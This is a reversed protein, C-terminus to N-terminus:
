MGFADDRDDPALDERRSGIRYAFHADSWRLHGVISKAYPDLLLKRPNFRLGQAPDYKGYVRYGYLLGPRADSLYVHWVQDTQEPLEICEVQRKSKSDFLCLEIREAHESFLAFNVGEGDWTAGPPYPRGPWIRSPQGNMAEQEKRKDVSSQAGARSDARARRTLDCCRSSITRLARARRPRRKRRHGRGAM